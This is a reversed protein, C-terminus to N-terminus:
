PHLLSVDDIWLMSGNKRTSKFQLTIKTYAKASTFNFVGQAFTAGSSLNFTFVQKNAGKTLTVIAQFVGSM